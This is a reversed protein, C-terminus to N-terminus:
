AEILSIIYGKVGLTVITEDPVVVGDILIDMNAPDISFTDCLMQKEVIPHQEPNYERVIEDPITYTINKVRVGNAALMFSDNEPLESSECKYDAKLGGGQINRSYTSYVNKLVVELITEGGDTKLSSNTAKYTIVPLQSM